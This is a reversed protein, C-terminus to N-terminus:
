HSSSPHFSYHHTLSLKLSSAFSSQSHKLGLAGVSLYFAQALLFSCVQLPELFASFAAQAWTENLCRSPRTHSLWLWMFQRRKGIIFLIFLIKTIMKESEWLQFSNNKVYTGQLLIDKQSDCFM